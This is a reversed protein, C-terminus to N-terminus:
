WRHSHNAPNVIRLFGSPQPDTSAFYKPDPLLDSFTKHKGYM